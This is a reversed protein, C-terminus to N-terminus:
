AGHTVSLSAPLFERTWCPLSHFEVGTVAMGLMGVVFFLEQKQELMIGWALPIHKPFVLFRTLHMFEM